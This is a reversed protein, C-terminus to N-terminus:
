KMWSVISANKGVQYSFFIAISFGIMALPFISCSFEWYALIYSFIGLGLPVAAMIANCKTIKEEKRHFAGLTGFLFFSLLFNLMGVIFVIRTAEFYNYGINQWSYSIKTVVFCLVIALIVILSTWLVESKLSKM